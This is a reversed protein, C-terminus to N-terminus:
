DVKNASILDFFERLRAVFAAGTEPEVFRAELASGNHNTTIITPLKNATREDIVQFLISGIKETTKEKGLDDIFLLPLTCWHNVIRHWTGNKYGEALLFELERMSLHTVVPFPHLRKCIYWATRSKGTRTTGHILLNGKGVNPAWNKATESCVTSLLRLETDRYIPPVLLAPKNLVSQKAINEECLRNNKEICEKNACCKAASFKYGFAELPETVVGCWVCNGNSNEM